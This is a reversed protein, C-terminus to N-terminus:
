ERVVRDGEKKRLKKREIKIKKREEKKTEKEERKRVRIRVCMLFLDSLFFILWKKLKCICMVPPQANTYWHRM